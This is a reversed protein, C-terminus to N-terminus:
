PVGWIATFTTYGAPDSLNPLTLSYTLDVQNPRDPFMYFIGFCARGNIPDYLISHLEWWGPDAGCATTCDVSEFPLLVMTDAGLSVSGPASGDLTLAAGAFTFGAAHPPYPMDVAPLQVQPQSPTSSFLCSGTAPEYRLAAGDTGESYLGSLVSGDCYFWLVYWADSRVALTQFLTYGFGPWPQMEYSVVQYSAGNIIVSGTASTVDIDGVRNTGGGSIAVTFDLPLPQDTAGVQIRQGAGADTLRGDALSGDLGAADTGAQADGRGPSDDGCGVLATIAIPVLWHLRRSM